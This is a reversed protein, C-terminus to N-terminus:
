FNQISDESERKRCFRWNQKATPIVRGAMTSFPIFFCQEYVQLPASQKNIQIEILRKATGTTIHFVAAGCKKKHMLPVTNTVRYIIFRITTGNNNLFIKLRIGSYLSSMQKM